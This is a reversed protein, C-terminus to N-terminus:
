TLTSPTSRLAKLRYLRAGPVYWARSRTSPLRTSQFALAATFAVYPDPRLRQLHSYLFVVSFWSSPSAREGKGCFGHANPSQRRFQQVALSLTYLIGTVNINIVSLDPKQFGRGSGETPMWQNEGVGAVALVYDVRGFMDVARQFAAAQSGWDAVDVVSHEGKLAEATAAAGAGDRDAIFVKIGKSAITAAIEKGIGSAGGTIFAFESAM